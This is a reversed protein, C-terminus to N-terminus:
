RPDGSSDASADASTSASAGASLRGRAITTLLSHVEFDLGTGRPALTIRLPQGPGVPALWKVQDIRPTTGLLGALAPRAQVAEMLLSLLVVGPLVPAGPFHGAFAPHDAPITLAIEAPESM